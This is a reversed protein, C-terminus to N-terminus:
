VLSSSVHKHNAEARNSEAGCACVCVSSCFYHDRLGVSDLLCLHTNVMGVLRSWVVSEVELFCRCADWRAGSLDCFSELALNTNM